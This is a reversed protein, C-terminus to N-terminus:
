KFLNTCTRSNKFWENMSLPISISLNVDTESGHNRKTCPCGRAVAVLFSNGPKNSIYIICWDNTHM